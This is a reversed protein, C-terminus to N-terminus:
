IKKLNKENEEIEKNFQDDLREKVYMEEDIGM